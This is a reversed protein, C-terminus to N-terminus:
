VSSALTINRPGTQAKPCQRSTPDLSGDKDTIETAVDPAPQAPTALQNSDLHDVGRHGARPVFHGYRAFTFAASHHGLQEQVYLVSERAALLLSAFTHRLTHVKRYRLGARRLIRRWVRRVNTDANAGRLNPFVWESAERGAVAAEAEHLSQWTRLAAVLQRSMDVRRTKGTKTIGTRGRRSSRRVVIVRAAWDVDEWKLAMVEGLRMGTRALTLFCPYYEPWDREAVGLATDLEDSTFIEIEIVEGQDQRVVKGLRAAPNNPIVGDEVASNLIAVLTTMFSKVTGPRIPRAGRLRGSQFETAILAKIKDRTIATLPLAGLHPFIRTDLRHRYAYLTSPQCAIGAVAALWKEAYEKFTPASPASLTALDGGEALRARIKLAAFEAAKKGDKGVGVRRAKRQGHHNVFLWWAGKWQRVHVAM